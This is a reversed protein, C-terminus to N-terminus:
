MPKANTECEKFDVRSAALMGISKRSGRKRALDRGQPGGSRVECQIGISMQHVDSPCRHVAGRVPSFEV